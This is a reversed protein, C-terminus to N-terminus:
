KEAFIFDISNQFSETKLPKENTNMGSSEIGPFKKKKIEKIERKM